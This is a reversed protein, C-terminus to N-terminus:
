QPQAWDCRGVECAGRSRRCLGRRGVDHRPRAIRAEMVAKRELDLPALATLVDWATPTVVDAYRARLDGRLDLGNPSNPM